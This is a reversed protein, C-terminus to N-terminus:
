KSQQGAPESGLLTEGSAPLVINGMLRWTQEQDKLLVVWHGAQPLNFKGQYYEGQRQLVQSQDLGARTPHSLTVSLSGPAVFFPAKATLRVSIGEASFRIGAEIGLAQARESRALTQNIALGRKYYDESVLGDNSRIALWLTVFSAVVVVLPGAMLLWPGPERYWPNVAAAENL